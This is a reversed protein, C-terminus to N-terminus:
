GQCPDVKWGELMTYFYEPSSIRVQDLPVFHNLIWTSAKQGIEVLDDRLPQYEDQCIDFTNLPSSSLGMPEVTANSLSTLLQNLGLFDSLDQRFQEAVEPHQQGDIQSTEYLFLQNPMPPDLPAFEALSYNASTSVLGLSM